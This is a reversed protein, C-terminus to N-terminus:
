ANVRIDRGGGSGDHMICIIIDMILIGRKIIIMIMIMIIIIMIM